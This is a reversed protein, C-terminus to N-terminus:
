KQFYARKSIALITCATIKVIELYPNSVKLVKM